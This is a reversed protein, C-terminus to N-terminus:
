TTQTSNVSGTVQDYQADATMSRKIFKQQLHHTPTSNRGAVFSTRNFAALPHNNRISNTCIEPYNYNGAIM